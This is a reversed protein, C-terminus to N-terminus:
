SINEQVNIKDKLVEILGALKVREQRTTDRNRITVTGDELTQFDVTVTLPTGIEDQSYYKKGINGLGVILKM